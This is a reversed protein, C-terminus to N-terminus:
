HSIQQWKRCMERVIKMKTIGVYKNEHTDHGLPPATCCLMAFPACKLNTKNIKAHANGLSSCLSLTPYSHRCSSSLACSSLTLAFLTHPTLTYHSLSTHTDTHTLTPSSRQAAQAAATTPMRNGTILPLNEALRSGTVVDVTVDVADGVCVDRERM